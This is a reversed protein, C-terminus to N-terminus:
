RRALRRLLAAIGLAVVLGVVFAALAAGAFLMLILAVLIAWGQGTKLASAAIIAMAIASAALTAIVAWRLRRRTFVAILTGVVLGAALGAVAAGLEPHRNVLYTEAERVCSARMRCDAAQLREIAQERARGRELWTVRAATVSVYPDAFDISSPELTWRSPDRAVERLAATLQAVDVGGAGTHCARPWSEGADLPRPIPPSAGCHIRLRGGGPMQIELYTDFRAVGRRRSEVLLMVSLTELRGERYMGWLGPAIRRQGVLRSGDPAEGADGDPAVRPTLTTALVGRAAEAVPPPPAAVIEAITGAPTRPTGDLAALAADALYADLAQVGKTDRAIALIERAVLLEFPDASVPQAYIARVSPSDPAVFLDSGRQAGASAAAALLLGLLLARMAM